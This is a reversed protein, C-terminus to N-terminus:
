GFISPPILLGLYGFVLAAAACIGLILFSGKLNEKHRFLMVMGLGANVLLGGLLAGFPLAGQIYLESILVSSVCNPILGILLSALPSFYYSGSLFSTVADAIGFGEYMLFGFGLIIIFAYVWIKLSHIVPHLLHDHWPSEKEGEIEHGCCGFHAEEEGECHELHEDVTEKKERFIADALIGVLAGILIKFGLVVFGIWWRGNWNGFLIPLAEDSCALFVAVVTGITLHKRCYLDAAVVSIGCQPIIGFLAGIIPAFRRSKKLIHAIKGEFFSLVVEFAFVMALIKLSDLFADLVVGWM